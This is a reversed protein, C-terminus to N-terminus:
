LDARRPLRAIIWLFSGNRESRPKAQKEVRVTLRFISRAFDISVM